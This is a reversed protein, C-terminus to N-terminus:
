VTKITIDKLKYAGNEGNWYNCAWATLFEIEQGKHYDQNYRLDYLKDNGIKLYTGNGYNNNDTSFVVDYKYNVTETPETPNFIVVELIYNKKEKEM